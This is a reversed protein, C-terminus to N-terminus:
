IFPKHFSLNHLQFSSQEVVLYDIENYKKYYKSIPEFSNGCLITKLGAIDLLYKLMSVFTTKGNSGTIVITKVSENFITLLDLENIFKFKLSLKIYLSNTEPIGPSKIVYDIDDLELLKKDALVYKKNYEEKFVAHIIEVKKYKLYKKIYKISKGKGLLLIKM